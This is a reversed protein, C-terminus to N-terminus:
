GVICRVINVFLLANNIIAKLNADGAFVQLSVSYSVYGLLSPKLDANRLLFSMFCLNRINYCSAVWRQCRLGSVNSICDCHATKKDCTLSVSAGVICGCETCGAFM